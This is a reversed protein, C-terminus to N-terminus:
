AAIDPVEALIRASERDLVELMWGHVSKNHAAAALAFRRHQEDTPRLTMKGNWGKEPETGEERCWAVYEDVSAAFERRLEEPTGGYFDLVDNIGIVRGHFQDASDDLEVVAWYDKYRMLNNLM